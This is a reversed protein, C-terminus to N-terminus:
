WSDPKRINSRPIPNPLQCKALVAPRIKKRFQVLKNLEVSPSCNDPIFWGILKEREKAVTIASCLDSDNSLVVACEYKDHWADNVLQVALNVDTGKERTEYVDIWSTGLKKIAENDAIKRNEVHSQFNGYHVRFSDIHKKLARIYTEQRIPRGPDGMESVRATFYKITHLQHNDDLLMKSLAFLDLWKYPTGKLSRNFINFGDVYVFTKM